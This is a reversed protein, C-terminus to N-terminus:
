DSSPHLYQYESYTSGYVDGGAGNVVIGLIRVGLAALRQYGAYVQPLRSVERLMTFIVGDVHQAILLSDAVPLIPCSDVVIFDFQERLQSFIRPVGEKALAEIAHSSPLGATLIWLDNVPGSQVAVSTVVEARLLESLGPNLPLGFV